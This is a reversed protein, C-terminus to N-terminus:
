KKSGTVLQQILKGYSTNGYENIQINQQNTPAPKGVEKSLIDAMDKRMKHAQFLLDAIDKNSGIEAEELEELKKEVIEDMKDAIRAMHRLGNEKLVNMVYKKVLPEDLVAYIHHTPISLQNSTNTVSCGNALYYNAIEAGEPSIAEPLADESYRALNYDSM